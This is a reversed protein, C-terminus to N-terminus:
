VWPPPNSRTRSKHRRAMGASVPLSVAHGRQRINSRRTFGGNAYRSTRFDCLPWETGLVDIGHFCKTPLSEQIKRLMTPLRWRSKRSPPNSAHNRPSLRKRQHDVIFLQRLQRHDCARARLRCTADLPRANQEGIPIIRAEERHALGQPQMMLGHLTTDLFGHGKTRQPREGIEGSGAPLAPNRVFGFAPQYRERTTFRILKAVRIFQPRRPQQRAIRTLMPRRRSVGVEGIQRLARQALDEVLM